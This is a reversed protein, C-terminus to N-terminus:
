FYSVFISCGFGFENIAKTLPVKLPVKLTKMQEVRALFTEDYTIRRLSGIEDASWTIDSYYHVTIKLNLWFRVRHIKTFKPWTCILFSGMPSALRALPRRGHSKRDFVRAVAVAIRIGSGITGSPKPGSTPGSTWGCLRRWWGVSVASFIPVIFCHHIQSSKAKRAM